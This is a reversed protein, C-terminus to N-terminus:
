ARGKGKRISDAILFAPHYPVLSAISHECVVGVTLDSM